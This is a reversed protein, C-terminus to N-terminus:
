ERRQKNFEDHENLLEKTQEKTLLSEIIELDEYKASPYMNQLALQVPNKKARRGPGKLWPHRQTNYAGVMSFLMWQLGPHKTLEWYHVNVLENTAVVYHETFFQDSDVNSAYRLMVYPTFAKKDEESLNAYYQKDRRDMANLVQALPLMKSAM